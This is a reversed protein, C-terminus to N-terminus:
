RRAPLLRRGRIRRRVFNEFLVFPGENSREFIVKRFRAVLRVRQGDGGRDVRWHRLWSWLLSWDYLVKISYSWSAIM